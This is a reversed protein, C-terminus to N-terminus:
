QGGKITDWHGKVALLKADLRDPRFIDRYSMAM